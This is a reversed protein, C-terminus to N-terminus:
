APASVTSTAACSTTCACPPRATVTILAAEETIDTRLPVALHISLEEGRREVKLTLKDRTPADRTLRDLPVGSSLGM